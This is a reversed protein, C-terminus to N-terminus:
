ALEKHIEDFFKFTEEAIHNLNRKEYNGGAEYVLTAIYTLLSEDATISGKSTEITM